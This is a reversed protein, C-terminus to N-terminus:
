ARLRRWPESRGGSTVSSSGCTHVSVSVDTIAALSAFHHRRRTTYPPAPIPQCAQISAPILPVVRSPGITTRSGGTFRMTVHKINPMQADTLLVVRSISIRRLGVIADVHNKHRQIPAAIYTVQCSPRMALAVDVSPGFLGLGSRLSNTHRGPSRARGGSAM